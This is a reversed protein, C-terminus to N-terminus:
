FTFNVEKANFIYNPPIFYSYDDVEKRFTERPDGSRITSSLKRPRCLDLLQLAKDLRNNNKHARAMDIVSNFASSLSRCYILTEIKREEAEKYSFRSYVLPE